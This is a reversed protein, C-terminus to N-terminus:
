DGRGRPFHFLDAFWAPDDRDASDQTGSSAPLGRQAGKGLRSGDFRTAKQMRQGQAEARESFRFHRFLNRKECTDMEFKKELMM